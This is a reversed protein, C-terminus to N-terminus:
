LIDAALESIAASGLIPFRNRRDNGSYIPTDTLWLPCPFLTPPWLDQLCRSEWHCDEVKAKKVGEFEKGGEESICKRSFSPAPEVPLPLLTKVPFGSGSKRYSTAIKRRSVETESILGKSQKDTMFDAAMEPCRESNGFAKSANQRFLLSSLIAVLDKFRTECKTTKTVKLKNSAYSTNWTM